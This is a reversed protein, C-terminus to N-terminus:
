ILTEEPNEWDTDELIKFSADEFDQPEVTVVLNLNNHKLIKEIFVVEESLAKIKACMLEFNTFETDKIQADAKLTKTEEKKKEMYILERKDRRQM